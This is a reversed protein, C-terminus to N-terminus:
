RNKRKRPIFIYKKFEEESNVEIYEQLERDYVIFLKPNFDDIDKAKAFIKYIMEKVKFELELDNIRIDYTYSYRARPKHDALRISCLRSDRFKIYTSSSTKAEYWLFACLPELAKLLQNKLNKITM